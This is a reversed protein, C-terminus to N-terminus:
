LPLVRVEDGYKILWPCFIPDLRTKDSTASQTHAENCIQFACHPRLMLARSTARVQETLKRASNPLFGVRGLKAGYSVAGNYTATYPTRTRGRQNQPDYVLPVISHTICQLNAYIGSQRQSNEVYNIAFQGTNLWIQISSDKRFDIHCRHRAVQFDAICGMKGM